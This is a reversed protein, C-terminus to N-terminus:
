DADGADVVESLRVALQGGSGEQEVLEGLAILREGVFLEVKDEVRRDLPLVDDQKLGLLEAITPQARGVSVRIEVPVSRLGSNDM